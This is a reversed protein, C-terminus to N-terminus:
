NHMKRRIGALGILGTGFLLITAPEPVPNSFIEYEFHILDATINSGGASAWFDIEFYSGTESIPVNEYAWEAGTVGEIYLSTQAGTKKIVFTGSNSFVDFSLGGPYTPHNWTFFKDRNDIGIKAGGTDGFLGFQLKSYADGTSSFNEFTMKVIFDNTTYIRPMNPSLHSWYSRDTYNNHLSLHADGNSFSISDDPDLYTNTYLPPSTYAHRAVFNDSNFDLTVANSNGICLFLWVFVLFLIRKMSKDKFSDVSILKRKALWVM